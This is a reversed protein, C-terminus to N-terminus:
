LYPPRQHFHCIRKNIIPPINNRQRSDPTGINTAKKITSVTPMRSKIPPKAPMSESILLINSEIPRNVKVRTTRKRMMPSAMKLDPIAERASSTISLTSIRRGPLNLRTATAPPAMKAVNLPEARPDQAISPAKNTGSIFFRPYELDSDMPGMIAPPMSATM